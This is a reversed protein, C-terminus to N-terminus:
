SGRVFEKQTREQGLMHSFARNNIRLEFSDSTSLILVQCDDLVMSHQFGGVIQGEAAAVIQNNCTLKIKGSIVSTDLIFTYMKGDIEIVWTYRKKTGKINKGVDEVNQYVALIKKQKEM